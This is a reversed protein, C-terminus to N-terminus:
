NLGRLIARCQLIQISIQCTSIDLAVDEAIHEEVDELLNRLRQLDVTLEQYQSTTDRGVYM